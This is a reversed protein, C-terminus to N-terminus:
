LQAKMETESSLHTLDELLFNKAFSLFEQLHGKNACKPATLIRGILTALPDWASIVLLFEALCVDWKCVQMREFFM